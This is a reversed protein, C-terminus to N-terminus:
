DEQVTPLLWQEDEFFVYETNINISMNKRDFILETNLGLAMLLKEIGNNYMIIKGDCIYGNIYDLFKFKKNKTNKAILINEDIYYSYEYERHCFVACREINNWIVKIGIGNLVKKLPVEGYFGFIKIDNENEIKVDNITLEANYGIFMNYFDTESYVTYLNEDIPYNEESLKVEITLYYNGNETNLWLIYPITINKDYVEIIRYDKIKTNINNDLLIKEIKEYSNIGDVMGACMYLRNTRDHYNSYLKEYTNNLTSIVGIKAGDSFNKYCQDKLYIIINYKNKITEEFLINESPKKLFDLM